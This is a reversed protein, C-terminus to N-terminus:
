SLFNVLRPLIVFMTHRNKGLNVQAGLFTYFTGTRTPLQEKDFNEDM